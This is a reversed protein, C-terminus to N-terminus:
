RTGPVLWASRAAWHGPWSKTVVGPDDVGVGQTCTALVGAAMALRHDRRTAIVGGRPTGAGPRVELGDTTATAEVGVARLMAVVDAIRDSEKTRVHAVGRIRTAGSAYAAVAAIAPVADSTAGLDVDVGALRRAPDRSVGLGSDEHIVCGMRALVEVVRVDAQASTRGLGAVDVRGGAVAAACWAFTASSADPEVWVEAPRLAGRASWGQATADVRVGFAGLVSATLAVYEDSVTSGLVTVHIGGSCAAGALLLASTFQSSAGGPVAVRLAERADLRLSGRQVTVPLDGPGPRRVSAGLAALADHLDRAPRSRLRDAGDVTTPGVRLAAVAAVFRSTTGALRADVRVARGDELAVGAAVRVDGGAVEPAGPADAADAVEFRAGLAVLAECMADVDDGTPVGRLVSGPPALCAAVLARNAISKSGPVVVRAHLPGSASPLAGAGAAPHQADPADNV